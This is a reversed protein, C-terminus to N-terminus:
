ASRKWKCEYTIEVDPDKSLLNKIHRRAHPEDDVVLVSLRM